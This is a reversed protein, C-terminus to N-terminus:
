WDEGNAGLDRGLDLTYAWVIIDNPQVIHASASVSPFEGNVSFMWGSLAGADGEFINHIAEVYADGILPTFRAAMHIRNERTVRQLIGFVSENEYALVTVAPFILGDAPVLEQKDRDLEQINQLLNKVNIEFTVANKKSEDFNQAPSRLFAFWFLVATGALLALFIITQTKHSKM